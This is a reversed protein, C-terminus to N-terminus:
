GRKGKQRQYHHQLGLGGKRHDPFAEKIANAIKLATEYDGCARYARVSSSTLFTIAEETKPIHELLEDLYKLLKDRKRRGELERILELLIFGRKEKEKAKSLPKGLPERAKEHQHDKACISGYRWIDDLTLKEAGVRASVTEFLM